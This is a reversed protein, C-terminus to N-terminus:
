VSTITEWAAAGGVRLKNLTTDFYLAGKVYAPAGATTALIPKVTGAFTANQSSDLTLATVQNASRFIISKGATLSDFYVDGSFSAWQTKSVGSEQLVITPNNGAVQNFKACFGAAVAASFTASQSADLTLATANGSKLIISGVDALLQLNNGLFGLQGTNGSSNSLSFLTNTQASGFVLGGPAYRYLQTDAGFGIGGVSTTHTALQLIGNNSDATTGLCFRANSQFRAAQAGAGTKFDIVSTAQLTVGTSNVDLQSNPFATGVILTGVSVTGTGSPTLTINQNTGGAVLSISGGSPMQLYNGLVANAGYIIGGSEFSLSRSGNSTYGTIGSQQWFFGTDQDSLFSMSPAAATGDGALLGAFTPTAGPDLRQPLLNLFRM